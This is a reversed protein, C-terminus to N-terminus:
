AVSRQPEYEGVPEEIVGEDADDAGSLTSGAFALLEAFPMPHGFLYGQYWLEGFRSLFVVQGTTEVGEVTVALDRMRALSVITTIMSQASVSSEIERVFSADIKIRDVTFRNLYSLGSYGTGFDDLALSVGLARLDDIVGSAHAHDCILVNETVEIELRGPAFRTESLIARVDEVFGPALFHSPSINVALRVDKITRVQECARRLVNLGLQSVLGLSEAIQVFEGPGITGLQPHHWRVLAEVGVIREFQRDVLPQYHIDIRNGEIANRLDTELMSFRRAALASADSYVVACGSDGSKSEVLAFEAQRLLQTWGERVGCVAVGVALGVHVSRDGIRVPSEMAHYAAAAIRNPDGPSGVRALLFAFRDVAIRALTCDPGALVALRASVAKLLEDGIDHGFSSNLSRFRRIDCIVLGVLDKSGLAAFAAKAKRELDNISPAGTVADVLEVERVQRVHRFSRSAMHVVSASMVAICMLLFLSRPNKLSGGDAMAVMVDVGLNWAAFSAFAIAMSALAITRKHLKEQLELM